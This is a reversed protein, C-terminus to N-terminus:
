KKGRSPVVLIFTSGIGEESELEIHCSIIKAFFQTLYLGLGTGKNIFARDDKIRYFKEFIREKLHDPIGPGQDIVSIRITMEHEAILIKITSESPSYKIANSILNYLVSKFYLQDSEIKEPGFNEIEVKIKKRDPNCQQSVTSITHYLDISEYRPKKIQSNEVYNLKSFSELYERLEEAGQKANKLIDQINIPLDKEVDIINQIQDSIKKNKSRLGSSLLVLFKEHVNNIERKSQSRLSSALRKKFYIQSKFITGIIIVLVSYSITRSISPYYSFYSFAILHLSFNLTHALILLSFAKEISYKWVYISFGIMFVFFTWSLLDDSLVLFADNILNDICLAIAESYFLGKDTEIESSDTTWPSNYYFDERSRQNITKNANSLDFGVIVIKNHLIEPKKQYYTLSFSKVEELRRYNINLRLFLNKSLIQSKIDLEDKSKKLLNDKLENFRQKQERTFNDIAVASFFSPNLSDRQLKYIPFNSLSIKKSIQHEFGAPLMSHTLAYPLRQIKDNINKSSELLGVIGGVDAISSIFKQFELNDFPVYHLPLVYYIKLPKIKQIDLHIEQLIKPDLLGTSDDLIPLNKNNNIKLPVAIQESIVAPKVISRLNYLKKEIVQNLNSKIEFMYIVYVITFMYLTIKLTISLRNRITNSIKNGVLFGGKALM